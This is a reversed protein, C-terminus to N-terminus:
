KAAARATVLLGDGHRLLEFARYLARKTRSRLGSGYKRHLQNTRVHVPSFRARRLVDCLSSPTYQWIHGEPQLGYWDAGELRSAWGGFNPVGVVAIGDPRLLKRIEALFEVPRPVHELVANTTIVDFFGPPFPSEEVLCLKVRDGYRERAYEVARPNTEIGYVDFGREAALAMLVGVSCGVDLLRGSSRSRLVENLVESLIRRFKAEYKRHDEIASTTLDQQEIPAPDTRCAGCADCRVVTFSPGRLVARSRHEGCYCSFRGASAQASTAM